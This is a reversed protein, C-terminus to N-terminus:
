LSVCSGTAKGDLSVNVDVLVFRLLPIYGMMFYSHMSLDTFINMLIITVYKVLIFYLYILFKVIAESYDHHLGYLVIM